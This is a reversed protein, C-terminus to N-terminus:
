TVGGDHDSVALAVAEDTTMRRGEAWAGAFGESGLLERVHDVQADYEVRESSTMPAAATERLSEAAGLLHAARGGNGQALFVFAISELQNAVAGRNGTRQWERITGRYEVLAEAPAGSRRLSHAYESQASVAFRIDHIERFRGEAERYWRQADAEEHRSRAVHGRMQVMGAIAWPNESRRANETALEMLREAAAPDSSAELMAISSQIIALRMPDGFRTALELTESAMALLGDRGPGGGTMAATQIANTQSDIIAGPDGSERALAIAEEAATERAAWGAFGVMFQNSVLVRAALVTRDAEPVASPMTRWRRALEAAQRMRDVGEQGMGHSRWFNGMAVCMELAVQPNTEFAWDLAVRLNDLEVELHHIWPVPEPGVLGAEADLALRRFRALHRARLELVEGSAVLKDNGYQRITELMGYRTAGAHTVVVLSRDALRGLGDLTEIRAAGGPAAGADAQDGTLAAAADLTWGGGFVSLRRLLRQDADSLLDWSWDVLAQLTQQRPVATRRGGTLLRFRDGLGQAIEEPSLVNVRAAALELALPIGDLRRCIEVVPAANTPDLRFEPLTTTAREVFLAVAESAAVAELDLHDLTEPVGMSPVAFPAEGPVGLAERSTAMVHLSPCSALLPEVLAAAAEILHECNDLLLLVDKSRLFDTVAALPPQGPGLQIGLMRVVESVVLGPERLPALEVVWAGDAHGSVQEAAVHLMLRTKGTGGVGVLTVLRHHGLLRGIEAAEHERGIFSTLEVPLNSPAAGSRLPPFDTPLGAGCLQYVHEPRALDKLHHEGRDALSADDPLDDAILAAGAASVLIQGGHGIALLRAVRNLSPGFFDNDRTEAHGVHIAMRVLLPKSTPWARGAIARQGALAARAAAGPRDFVALLGDGTTKVVTGGADEVLSRLLADHAALAGVMAAHESEWLRTSGQIDTMLFASTHTEGIQSM